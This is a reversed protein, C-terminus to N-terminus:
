LLHYQFPCAMADYKDDHMKNYHMQMETCASPIFQHFNSNKPAAAAMGHSNRASNELGALLLVWETSYHDDMSYKLGHEEDNILSIHNEKSSECNRILINVNLEVQSAVVVVVM